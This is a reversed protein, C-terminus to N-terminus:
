KAESSIFPEKKEHFLPSSSILPHLHNGLEYAKLVFAFPKSFCWHQLITQKSRAVEFLLFLCNIIILWSKNFMNKRSIKLRSAVCVCMTCCQRQIQPLLSIYSHLLSIYYDFRCCICIFFITLNLVENLRLLIM